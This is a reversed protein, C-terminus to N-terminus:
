EILGAKELSAIWSAADNLARQGDIGFNEALLAAADDATFDVGSLKNWLFEATPNLMIVKTLDMGEHGQMVVVREGAVDRINCDKRLKM